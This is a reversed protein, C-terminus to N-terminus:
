QRVYIIIGWIFLILLPLGITVSITISLEAAEDQKWTFQGTTILGTTSQSTTAVAGTTISGTTPIYFCSSNVFQAFPNFGDSVTDIRFTGLGGAGNDSYAFTATSNIFDYQPRMDIGTTANLTTLAINVSDWPGVAGVPPFGLTSTAIGFGYIVQGPLTVPTTFNWTVVATIGTRCIGNPDMWTTNSPCSGNNEPKWPLIILDSQTYILSGVIVSGTANFAVNYFSVYATVNFGNAPYTPNSSHSAHVSLVTSFQTISVSANNIFQIWAGFRTVDNAEIGISVYNYALPNDFNNYSYCNSTNAMIIGQTAPPDPGLFDVTTNFALCSSILFLLILTM